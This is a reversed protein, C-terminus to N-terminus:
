GRNRMLEKVKEVKLKAGLATYLELATNLFDKSKAKDTDRNLLGLNRNVEAIQWKFGLDVSLELSKQYYEKARQKEGKMRYAEGLNDFLIAITQKDGLEESLKLSQDYESIAEDFKHQEWYIIGLNNHARAIGRKDELKESLSLSKRIVKIATDMAGNGWHVLAINSYLKSCNEEDNEGEALKLGNKFFEMAKKLNGKRYYIGGIANNARAQGCTDEREEYCKLSDQYCSLASDWKGTVGLIHGKHIMLEPWTEESVKEPVLETLIANLEETYGKSILTDGHSVVLKAVNEFNGARLNHYQAEIIANATLSQETGPIPESNNLESSYYNAAESHHKVKQQPTLRHYFFEKILEHQDFGSTTEHLLSKGALADICEYDLDNNIFFADPPVPYRFVSIRSLLMKEDDSLRQFIEEHLYKNIDHQDKFLENLDLHTTMKGSKTSEMRKAIHIGILEISLPHGETISYIKKFDSNKIYDINLLEKSEDSDLGILELEAVLKNIAVERRDYFGTAGRTLVLVNVNELRDLALLEVFMSFLQKLNKSIKQFDDFVMLINRGGLDAALLKHLDPLEINSEHELYFKLKQAGNQALFEALESLTGRLTDWEHARFWFVCKHGEKACEDVIKAALTTKGIGPIGKIVIIRTREASIWTKIQKQEAVRGIFRMPQAMNDIFHVPKHQTTVIFESSKGLKEFEEIKSTEIVGDSSTLLMLQLIPIQKSLHKNIESLKVTETEGKIDKLLVSKQEVNALIKRTYNKGEPTLFYIKRKRPINRIHAIREDVMCKAKLGKMEYSVHSRRIGLARAIGPQTVDFPVEFEDQCNSYNLLHLIIGDQVTLNFQTLTM